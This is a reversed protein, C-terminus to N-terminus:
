KLRPEVGRLTERVEAIAEASKTRDASAGAGVLCTRCIIKRKVSRCNFGTSDTPIGMHIALEAARHTLLDM